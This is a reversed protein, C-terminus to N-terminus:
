RARALASSSDLAHTARAGGCGNTLRRRLFRIGLPRRGVDLWVATAGLSPESFMGVMLFLGGTLTARHITSLARLDFCVLALRASSWFAVAAGSVIMMPIMAVAARGLQRHTPTGRKAVLVSQAVLLGIWTLFLMGHLYVFWPASFSRRALPLFFTRGFGTLVLVAIVLSMTIFFMRTARISVAPNERTREKM